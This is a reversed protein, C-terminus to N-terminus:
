FLFSVGGFIERPPMPYDGAHFTDTFDYTRISAFKRDFINKMGIFVDGKIGRGFDAPQSIKGDFTSYHWADETPRVYHKVMRGDLNINTKTPLVFNLSSNLTQQPITYIKAGSVEDVPKIYTYNANWTLSDSLKFKAGAEVGTIKARGINVPSVGGLSNTQWSILNDIKREFGTVQISNGRGFPQEVGAEYETATEPKLNPNGKDGFTDVFYLENFTPARFAKGASARFITGTGAFLYRASMKPSFKNGYVSHDDDRGGIVVILQEGLSIEDQLYAARLSATHEGADTSAIHDQRADVGFTLLNWSNALWNAQAETGTSTTTHISAPPFSPDLYIITDRNQYANLKVDLEKSFKMRYTLSSDLNRDWERALTSMFNTAGPVGIEKGIWDSTFEVSSDPSIDYGLKAGATGQDLDSNVRFGTSKEKGASLTYYFKDLKNSNSLALSEYGHSGAQGTVTTLAGTPKKTIINVVGGVADAGYLASSPGRVIEIKEIADLPVPLDAMDFGGASASNLRRGDLLVLVQESNAGRINISSTSGLPGNSNVQVGASMEIVEAATTAGSKRIDDATIVTVSQSIDQPERETKTATVVVEKLQINPEEAMAVPVASVMAVVALVVGVLM